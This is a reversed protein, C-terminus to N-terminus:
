VARRAIACAGIIGADNGHASPVIYDELSDRIVPVDIYEDNLKLFHSRIKPFLSERKMVGGSLVIFHPSVAFTITLCLQALYYAVIDWQPHDDSVTPLEAMTVGCREACAQASAMSEVSGPHLSTWGGYSDDPHRLPMIHGGEPHMLGHVPAGNVVLGVGVGTGVTIYACSTAKPRHM